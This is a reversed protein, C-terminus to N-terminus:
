VSIYIKKGHLWHAVGVCVTVGIVNSLLLGWHKSQSELTFYVSLPMYAGLIEHGMYLVISNMGTERLPWGDWKHRVDVVYYLAAFLLNAFGACLLVFSPSWLNKNVPMVGSNESTGCLGAAAACLLVGSGVLRRIVVAPHMGYVSVFRGVFLGCVALFAASFGGMIGEPDYSECEYVDMCTPTQYYHDPGLVQSDVYRNAGGTCSYHASQESIGGPGNYGTPCDEVSLTQTVALYILMPLMGLLVYKYIVM